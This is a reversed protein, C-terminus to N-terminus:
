TLEVIHQGSALAAVIDDLVKGVAHLLAEKRCNGIRVWVLRGADAPRNALHFCDEDKSIVVRDNAIAWEWLTRDAAAELGVEAVHLSDHGRSTLYRALSVPLHHDIVFRM